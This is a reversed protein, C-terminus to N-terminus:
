FTKNSVNGGVLSSIKDRFLVAGGAHGPNERGSIDPRLLQTLDNRCHRISGICHFPHLLIQHFSSAMRHVGILLEEQESANQRM